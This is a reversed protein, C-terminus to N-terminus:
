SLNQNSKQLIVITLERIDVKGNKEKPLHLLKRAYIIEESKVDNMRQNETPLKKSQINEMHKMRESLMKEAEKEM